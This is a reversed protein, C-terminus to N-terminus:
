VSVGAFHGTTWGIGDLRRCIELVSTVDAEALSLQRVVSRARKAFLAVASSDIGAALDLSPAPWLQEDAVGLRGVLLGARDDVLELRKARAAREAEALSDFTGALDLPRPRLNDGYTLILSTLARWIARKRPAATRVVQAISFAATLMGEVAAAAGHGLM